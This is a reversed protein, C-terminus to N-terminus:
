VTLHDFEGAKAGDIFARLKARDTTIITTTDESEVLHIAGGKGPALHLCEKGDIHSQSAKVFELEEGDVTLKLVPKM